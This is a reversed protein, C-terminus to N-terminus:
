HRLCVLLWSSSLWCAIEGVMVWSRICAQHLFLFHLALSVARYNVLQVLVLSTSESLTWSIPRCQKLVLSSAVALYPSASTQCFGSCIRKHLGDMGSCVLRYLSLARFADRGRRRTKLHKWVRDTIRAGAQAAITYGIALAIYHLGSDGLSQGYRETWLAAFTSLVIYLIGFNYALLLGVVQMGARDEDRYIRSLSVLMCTCCRWNTSHMM